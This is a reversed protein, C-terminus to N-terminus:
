PRACMMAGEYTWGRDQMERMTSDSTSLRHNSDNRAAGNNYARGVGLYGDPCVQTAPAPQIHFAIGEYFWPGAGGRKVFDCEGPVATFFHSNPGGNVAGYFRCVPATAFAAAPPELWALFSQGTLSWGPGAGGTLIYDVEVPNAAIFFHDLIQNHFERVPVEGPSRAIPVHVDFILNDSPGGQVSKMRIFRTMAQPDWPVELYANLFTVMWTFLDGAYAPIFEHPVDKLEVLYRTGRMRDSAKKMMGIPATTDATGSLALFPRTVTGAGTQDDCFAPLFTQGAYPVFGVAAKLRSDVPADRCSRGITATIRAGLLHLMAEGGLSAGFGGIRDTDIAPAFGPDALMRDTMAKLSLPRMLQMEVVRDFQTLLYVFDTFDEVRVRSFRPDGHFPAAVMYGHSALTVLAGVYGKSIPSGTLGHSFLILPLRATPSPATEPFGAGAIVDAFESASLLKPASGAPQMHPVLDGSGPLVYDPDHNGQTTPYCVIAVFDVNTGRSGPYLDDDPVAVSYSVTDQPNALIETIYHNRGEWYDSASSGPAIRGPVQAINSCAVNFPGTTSPAVTDVHNFAQAPLVCCAAALMLTARIAFPPFRPM